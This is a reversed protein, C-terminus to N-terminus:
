SQCRDARPTRHPAGRASLRAEEEGSLIRVPPGFMRHVSEAFEAGDSADRVAATALLELREVGMAESLAIFRELSAVARERGEPHLVGTAQLDRALGCQVKENYIATPQGTGGEFVVLRVSNSGIDIVAVPSGRAPSGSMVSPSGVPEGAPLLLSRESHM